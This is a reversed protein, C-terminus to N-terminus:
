GDPDAKGTSSQYLAKSALIPIPNKRLRYFGRSGRYNEILGM